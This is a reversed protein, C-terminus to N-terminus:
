VPLGSAEGKYFYNPDIELKVIKGKYNNAYGINNTVPDNALRQWDEM